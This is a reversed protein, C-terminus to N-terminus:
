WQLSFHNQVIMTTIGLITEKEKSMPVGYLM